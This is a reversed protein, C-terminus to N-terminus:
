FHELQLQGPVIAEVKVTFICMKGKMIHEIPVEARLDFIIDIKENKMLDEVDDAGGIYIRNNVLEQYNKATMDKGEPL